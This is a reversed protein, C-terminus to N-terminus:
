GPLATTVKRSLILGVGKKHKQCHWTILQHDLLEGTERWKVETIGLMDNHYWRQKRQSIVIDMITQHPKCLTAYCNPMPSAILQDHTWDGSACLQMVVKLLNNVGRHRQWWATYSQVPRLIVVNKLQSSSWMGPPFYHYGVVPPNSLFDGTPQSGTCQCWSQAWRETVLM